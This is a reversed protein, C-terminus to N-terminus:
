CLTRVLQKHVTGVSSTNPQTTTTAATSKTEAGFTVGATNGFHFASKKDEGESKNKSHCVMIAAGEIDPDDTVSTELM